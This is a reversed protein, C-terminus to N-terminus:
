PPRKPFKHPRAAHRLQPHHRGDHAGPAAAVAHGGQPPRAQAAKRGRPLRRGRLIVRPEHRQLLVPRGDDLVAATHSRRRAANKHLWSSILRFRRAAAACLKWVHMARDAPLIVAPRCRMYGIPADSPISPESVIAASFQPQSESTRYPRRRGNSEPGPANTQKSPM